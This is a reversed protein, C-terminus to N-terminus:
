ETTPRVRCSQSWVRSAPLCPMGSAGLAAAATRQVVDVVGAANGLVQANGVVDHVLLLTELLIHHPWKNGLVQGPTRGNGAREAVVVQFEVLQELGGAGDRRCCRWRGSRPSRIRDSARDSSESAAWPDPWPGSRSERRGSGPATTACGTEGPGDSWARPARLPAAARSASASFASECSIQKM